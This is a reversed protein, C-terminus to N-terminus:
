REKIKKLVVVGVGQDLKAEVPLVWVNDGVFDACKVADKETMVIVESEHWPLDQSVFPHHDPFPHETFRMGLKKLYIFFREPHGIGAVAHVCQGAFVEPRAQLEPNRLNYLLDGSLQMTFERRKLPAGPLWGNIVVADVRKLRWVPERLPGAPLLQGNGFWRAADVVVVEVDRALRYHQLGDDSVIVNTEPHSGILALGVEVRDHGVWVPCETKHALLVAEDGVENPNSDVTVPRPLTGKGRYGRSIVGPQYGQARLLAVLAIVLPTKGTGGVSINGVVVVPVPLKFRRLWGLRFLSRRAASLLWFVLSLPLLIVHWLSWCYWQRELWSM